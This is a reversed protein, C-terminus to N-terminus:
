NWGMERLLNSRWLMNPNAFPIFNMQDARRFKTSNLRAVPWIPGMELYIEVWWNCAEYKWSIISVAFTSLFNHFKGFNKSPFPRWAGLFIPYHSRLEGWSRCLWIKWLHLRVISLQYIYSLKGFYEPPLHLWVENLPVLSNYFKPAVSLHTLEIGNKVHFTNKIIAAVHFLIEFIIFSALLKLPFSCDFGRSFSDHSRLEVWLSCFWVKWLHLRVINLQYINSLKGFYKPPLSVHDSRM